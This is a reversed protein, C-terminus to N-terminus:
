VASHRSGSGPQAAGLAPSRGALAVAGTVTDTVTLTYQVNSLAGYFVWFHGNLGRGDLVKVVIEINAADFFWFSGTDTTLPVATGSGSMGSFDTWAVSVSFRDGNLCLQLPGSNCGSVQQSAARHPAEVLHGGNAGSTLHSPPAGISSAGLPGFAATDGVSALQGPPNLYRRTLGTTTDTVPASTIQRTGAPTGNSVWLQPGSGNLFYIRPGVPKLWALSPLAAGQTTV